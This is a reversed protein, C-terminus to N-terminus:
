HVLFVKSVYLPVFYERVLLMEMCKGDKKKKELSLQFM